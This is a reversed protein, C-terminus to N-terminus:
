DPGSQLRGGNEQVPSVVIRGRIVAFGVDSEVAIPRQTQRHVGAEAAARSRALPSAQLNSV